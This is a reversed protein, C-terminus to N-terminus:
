CSVDPALAILEAAYKGFLQHEVAVWRSDFRVNDGEVWGSKQLAQRFVAFREQVLRDEATLPMLVGIRRMGDSKQARAAAPWAAASGLGVIFDRRRMIESRSQVFSGTTLTPLMTM